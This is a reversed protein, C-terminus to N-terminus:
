PEQVSFEATEVVENNVSFDIRYTGAPWSEETTLSFDINRTGDTVIETKDILTNPAAAQGVDVTYWAASFQTDPPADQIAVVAHITKDGPAFVDTPNVPENQDGEVDKAM